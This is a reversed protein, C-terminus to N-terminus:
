VAEEEGAVVVVKKAEQPEEEEQPPVPPQQDDWADKKMKARKDRCAQDVCFMGVGSENTCGFQACRAFVAPKVVVEGGGGEGASHPYNCNAGANCKGIKFFMCINDRSMAEAPIKECHYFNCSKDSMKCRGQKWFTCVTPLKHRHLSAGGDEAEKHDSRWNMSKRNNNNRKKYKVRHFGDEDEDEDGEGDGKQYDPQQQQPFKTLKQEKKPFKTFQSPPASAADRNRAKVPSSDSESYDGWAKKSM